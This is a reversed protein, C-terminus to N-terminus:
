MNTHNLHPIHCGIRNGTQQNGIIRRWDGTHKRKKYPTPGSVRAADQSDSQITSSSIHQNSKNLKLKSQHIYYIQSTTWPHCRHYFNTQEITTPQATQTPQVQQAPCMMQIIDRRYPCKASASSHDGKCKSCMLVIVADANRTDVCM